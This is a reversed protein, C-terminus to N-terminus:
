QIIKEFYKNMSSSSTNTRALFDCISYQAHLTIIILTDIVNTSCFWNVVQVFVRIKVVQVFVRFIIYNQGILISKKKMDLVSYGRHYNM